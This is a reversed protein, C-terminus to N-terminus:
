MFSLFLPVRVPDRGAADREDRGLEGRGVPQTAVPGPASRHSKPVGQVPASRRGQKKKKKGKRTMLIVVGMMETRAPSVLDATSAIAFEDESGAGRAQAAGAGPSHAPQPARASQM